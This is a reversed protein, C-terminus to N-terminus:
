AQLPIQATLLIAVTGDTFYHTGMGPNTTAKFELTDGSVFPLITRLHEAKFMTPTQKTSELEVSEKFKIKEDSMGYATIFGEHHVAVGLYQPAMSKLKSLRNLTGYLQEKNINLVGENQSGANILKIAQEIFPQSAKKAMAISTTGDTFKIFRDNHSMTVKGILISNAKVIDSPDILVDGEHASNTEINPKNLICMSQDIGAIFMEAGKFRIQLFPMSNIGNPKAVFPVCAMMDDFLEVKTGSVLDTFGETPFLPFDSSTHAFPIEITGKDHNFVFAAEQTDATITVNGVCASAVALLDKHSICMEINCPVNTQLFISTELNSTQLSMFGDVPRINVAELIPLVTNGGVAKGVVNLYDILEAVKINM